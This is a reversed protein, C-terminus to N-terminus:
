PDVHPAETSKPMWGPEEFAFPTPPFAVNKRTAGSVVIQGTGDSVLQIEFRLGTKRAITQCWHWITEASARIRRPHTPLALYSYTNDQRIELLEAFERKSDAWGSLHTIRFLIQTPTAM